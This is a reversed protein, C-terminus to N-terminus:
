TNDYKRQLRQIESDFGIQGLNKIEIQFGKKTMLEKWLMFTHIDFNLYYKDNLHRILEEYTIFQTQCKKVVRYLNMYQTKVIDFEHTFSGTIEKVPYVVLYIRLWTTTEDAKVWTPVNPYNRTMAILQAKWGESYHSADAITCIDQYDLHINYKNSFSYIIDKRSETSDPLDHKIEVLISRIAIIEIIAVAFVGILSLFMNSSANVYIYLVIFIVLSIMIIKIINLITKM